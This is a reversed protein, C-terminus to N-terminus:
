FGRVMKDYIENFWISKFMSNVKDETLKNYFNLKKDIFNLLESDIEESFKDKINDKSNSLNFFSMLENNSYINDKMKNFEVKEEETLDLGYTDNLM